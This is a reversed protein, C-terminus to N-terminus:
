DSNYARWASGDYIIYNNTDTEFYADGISPSGPRTSSTISPITTPM